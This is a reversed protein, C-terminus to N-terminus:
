YRSSSREDWFIHGRYAEGHLGRAPVGIDLDESNCSVTQLLHLLHLRLIRLEDAHDDFEISLREWLHAWALTHADRLEAFRGQRGLQREAGAAPESTAVDRGTVLTVVKEVSLSQGAVLDTFIEHGVEFEEDVLRYTAPAPEGDRWATTRAALAVPIQSQTTEVAMLVSNPSLARMTLSTLHTSALERYREVL